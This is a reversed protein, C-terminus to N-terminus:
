LSGKFCPKGAHTSFIDGLHKKYGLPTGDGQRLDLPSFALGAIAKGQTKTM